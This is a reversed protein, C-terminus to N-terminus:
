IPFLFLLASVQILNTSLLEDVVLKSKKAIEQDNLHKAKSDSSLSPIRSVDENSASVSGPQSGMGGRRSSNDRSSPRLILFM